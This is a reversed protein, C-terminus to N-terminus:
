EALAAKINLGNALALPGGRRFARWINLDGIGRKMATGNIPRIKLITLVVIRLNILEYNNM